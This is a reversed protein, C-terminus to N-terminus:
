AILEVHASLLSTDAFHLYYFCARLATSTVHEPLTPTGIKDIAAQVKPPPLHLGSKFLKPPLIIAEKCPVEFATGAAISNTLAHKYTVSKHHLVRKAERQSQVAKTTSALMSFCKSKKRIKKGEVKKKEYALALLLDTSKM